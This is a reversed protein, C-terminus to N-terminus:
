PLYFSQLFSKDTVFTRAVTSIGIQPEVICPHISFITSLVKKKDRFSFIFFKQFIIEFDNPLKL